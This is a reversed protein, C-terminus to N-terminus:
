WDDGGYTTSMVEDALDLAEPLVTIVEAAPRGLAEEASWGYLAEAGANWSTVLGALDVVVVAVPLASSVAALADPSLGPGPVSPLTM